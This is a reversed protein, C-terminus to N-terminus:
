NSSLENDSSYILLFVGFSSALRLRRLFSSDQRQHGQISFLQSSKSSKRRRAVAEAKKEIEDARDFNNCIILMELYKVRAPCLNSNFNWRHLERLDAVLDVPLKTSTYLRARFTYLCQPVSSAYLRYYFDTRRSRTLQLETAIRQAAKKGPHRSYKLEWSVRSSFSALNERIEWWFEEEEGWINLNIDVASKM